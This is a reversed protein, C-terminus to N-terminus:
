LSFLGARLLLWRASKGDGVALRKVRCLDGRNFGRETTFCAEYGVSKALKVSEEDYIGWPWALGTVPRDLREELLEKSLQLERKAEKRDVVLLSTLPTGDEVPGEVSFARWDKGKRYPKGGGRAARHSLSHSQVSFIPEKLLERLEGWSLFPSNDGELFSRRFAELTSVSADEPSSRVQFSDLLREPSVFFVAPVSYKKLLPVAYFFLDLFGDDFTLLVSGVPLRGGRELFQEYTVPKLFRRIVRLHDEFLSPPLGYEPHVRHYLLVACGM